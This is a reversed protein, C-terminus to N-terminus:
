VRSSMKNFLAILLAYAYFRATSLFITSPVNQIKSTLKITQLFLLYIRPM